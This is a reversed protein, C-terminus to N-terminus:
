AVTFDFNCLPGASFGYPTEDGATAATAGCIANCTETAIAADDFKGDTTSMGIKAHATIAAASTFKFVGGICIWGYYATTWTRNFQDIGLPGHAQDSGIARIFPVGSANVSLFYALYRTPASGLSNLVYMYLGGDEGRVVLGPKFLPTSSIAELEVGGLSDCIALNPM